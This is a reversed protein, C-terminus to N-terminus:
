SVLDTRISSRVVLGAVTARLMHTGAFALALGVVGAFWILLTGSALLLLASSVEIFSWSRLNGLSQQISVIWANVAAFLAAASMFYLAMRFDRYDSNYFVLITAVVASIASMLAGCGLVVVFSKKAVDRFIKYEASVRCSVLRPVSLMALQQSLMAGMVFIRQGIAFAAVAGAGESEQLM